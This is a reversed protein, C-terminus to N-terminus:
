VGDASYGRHHHHIYIDTACGGEGEKRGEGVMRGEKREEKRGEKRVKM